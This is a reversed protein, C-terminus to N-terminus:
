DMEPLKAAGANVLKTAEKRPLSVVDGTRLRDDFDGSKGLHDDGVSVIRDGRMVEVNAMPWYDRIVSVEMTTEKEPKKIEDTM